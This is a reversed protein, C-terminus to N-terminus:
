VTSHHKSGCSSKEGAICSCRNPIMEIKLFHNINICINNAMVMAQQVSSREKILLMRLDTLEDEVCKELQIM